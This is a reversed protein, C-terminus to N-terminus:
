CDTLPLAPCPLVCKIIRTHRVWIYRKDLLFFFELPTLPSGKDCKAQLNPFYYFNKDFVSVCQWALSVFFGGSDFTM